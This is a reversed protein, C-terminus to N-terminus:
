HNSLAHALAEPIEDVGALHVVGDVQAAGDVWVCTEWAAPMGLAVESLTHAM